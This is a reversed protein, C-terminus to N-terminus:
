RRDAISRKAQEVMDARVMIGVKVFHCRRFVCSTELGIVGVYSREGPPIGYIVSDPGEAWTCNPFPWSGYFPAAIIPGFIQCDDFTKGEITVNERAFDALYIPEEKFYSGQLKSPQPEHPPSGESESGEVLDDESVPGEPAAEPQQTYVAWLILLVAAAVTVLVGPGTALFDLTPGVYNMVLDASGAVALLGNVAQALLLLAGVLGKKSKLVSLIKAFM